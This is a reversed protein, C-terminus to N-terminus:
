LRLLRAAASRRRLGRPWQFRSVIQNCHTIIVMKEMIAMMVVTTWKIQPTFATHWETGYRLTNILGTLLVFQQKCQCWAKITQLCFQTVVLLLGFADIKLIQSLWGEKNYGEKKSYESVQKKTIYKTLRKMSSWTLRTGTIIRGCWDFICCFWWGCKM